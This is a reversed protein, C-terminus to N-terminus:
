CIRSRRLQIVSKSRMPSYSEDARSLLAGAEDATGLRPHITSLSNLLIAM